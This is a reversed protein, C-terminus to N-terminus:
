LNGCSYHSQSEIASLKSTAHRKLQTAVNIARISTLSNDTFEIQTRVKESVNFVYFDEALNPFERWEEIDTYRWSCNYTTTLISTRSDFQYTYPCKYDAVYKGGAALANSETFSGLPQSFVDAVNLALAFSSKGHVAGIGQLGRYLPQRFAHGQSDQFFLSVELTDVEKSDAM